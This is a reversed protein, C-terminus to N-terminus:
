KYCFVLRFNDKFFSTGPYPLKRRWPGEEGHGLRVREGDLDDGCGHRNGRSSSAEFISEGKHVCAHCLFSNYIFPNPPRVERGASSSHHSM